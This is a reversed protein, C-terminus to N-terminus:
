SHMGSSINIQQKEEERPTSYLWNYVAHYGVYAMKSGLGDESLTFKSIKFEGLRDQSHPHSLLM